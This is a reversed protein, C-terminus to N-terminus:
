IIWFRFWSRKRVRQRSHQVAFRHAEDRIRQLLKLIERQQPGAYLSVTERYFVEEKREALGIVLIEMDLDELVQAAANVQGSGGDVLILDPLFLPRTEAFGLWSVGGCSWPWRGIIM